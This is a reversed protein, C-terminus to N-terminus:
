LQNVVLAWALYLNAPNDRRQMASPVIYVHNLELMDTINCKDKNGSLRM